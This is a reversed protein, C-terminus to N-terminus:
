GKPAAFAVQDLVKVTVASASPNCRFEITKGEATDIRATKALMVPITIRTAAGKVEDAANSDSMLVTLNCIGGEALYYSVARKSGVDFSIGHRSTMKLGKVEDAMTSAAGSLALASALAAVIGKVEFDTM